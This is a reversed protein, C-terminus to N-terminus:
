FTLVFLIAILKLPLNNEFGIQIWNNRVYPIVLGSLSVIGAVGFLAATIQGLLILVEGFFIPVLLCIGIM